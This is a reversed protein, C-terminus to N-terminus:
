NFKLSGFINVFMFKKYIYLIFFWHVFNSLCTVQTFAGPDHSFENIIEISYIKTSLITAIDYKFKWWMNYSIGLLFVVTLTLTISLIVSIKRYCPPKPRSAMPTLPKPNHSSLKSRQNNLKRRLSGAAM